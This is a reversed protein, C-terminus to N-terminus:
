LVQRAIKGYAVQDEMAAALQDLHEGAKGELDGRFLNILNDVLKPPKQGTLKQRAMLALAEHMPASVREMFRGLGKVELEAELAANLNGKVGAMANAGIAEIRAQEMADFAAQGEPSAPRARAHAKVDHYALKLAARDALGRIRAVDDAPLDRRPHPLVLRDGSLSAGEGSFTVELEATEGLSRTAHALARKFPETPGTPNKSM